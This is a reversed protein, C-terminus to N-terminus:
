DSLFERELAAGLANWERDDDGDEVDDISDQSNDGLDLYDPIIEGRRFRAAIDDDSDRNDDKESDLNDEDSEDDNDEDFKEDSNGNCVKRKKRRPPGLEGVVCFVDDILRIIIFSQMWLNKTLKHKKTNKSFDLRIFQTDNLFDARGNSDESSSSPQIKMDCEEADDTDDADEFIMDQEDMDEDVEKDMCEIEEQSFSM